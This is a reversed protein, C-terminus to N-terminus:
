RLESLFSRVDGHDVPRAKGPRAIPIRVIFESGRGLGESRAEISGGHLEVLGKVLALGIGLGGDARDLSTAAQSFMGFVRPLMEPDIGIGSDRVKVLVISEEVSVSLDIRGHPESYKAANMLINAFVQALRLADADLNVVEEPLTVTLRHNRTEILPRATEVATDIVAALEVLERRLVLKGQTIRSVDLLDDLLLAMQQVQREIVDHSWRLQAETVNPSRAISAAARIPALPNRLEHALTALFEDKRQDAARLRDNAERVQQAAAELAAHHKALSADTIIACRLQVGDLLLPSFSAHVPLTRGTSTSLTLEGSASRSGSERVMSELRVADEAVLWTALRSGVLQEQSIGLLAALHRNGYLVVGDGTLTAAGENMSEVLIRYPRDAGELTFVRDGDPGTVVVADIEGHRIAQVVSEAEALRERLEANERELDTSPQPASM